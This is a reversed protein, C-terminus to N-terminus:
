YVGQVIVSYYNITTFRYNLKKKQNELIVNLLIVVRPMFLTMSIQLDNNREDSSISLKFMM